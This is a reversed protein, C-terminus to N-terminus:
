VAMRDMKQSLENTIRCVEGFLRHIDPEKHFIKKQAKMLLIEKLGAMSIDFISEVEELLSAKGVPLETNLQVMTLM